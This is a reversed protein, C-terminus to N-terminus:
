IRKRRTIHPIDDNMPIVEKVEEYDEGTFYEILFSSEDLVDISVTSDFFVVTAPSFDRVIKKYFKNEDFLDKIIIGEEPESEMYAVYKNDVLIPNFFTDSVKNSRKDFYFIYHAPNGVSIVIEVLEDTVNSIGPEVPSWTTDIVRGWRDYCIIEYGDEVESCLVKGEEKKIFYIALFCICLFIVISFSVKKFLNKM